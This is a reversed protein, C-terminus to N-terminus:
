RWLNFGANLFPKGSPGAGLRGSSVLPALIEEPPTIFDSANLFKLLKLLPM